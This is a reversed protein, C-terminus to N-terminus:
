KTYITLIFTVIYSTNIDFYLKNIHCEQLLNLLIYTLIFGDAQSINSHLKSAWNEPWIM